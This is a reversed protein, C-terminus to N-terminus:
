NVMNKKSKKRARKYVGPYNTPLDTDSGGHNAEIKRQDNNELGEKADEKIKNQRSVKIWAAILQLAVVIAELYRM